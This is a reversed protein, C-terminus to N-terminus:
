NESDQALPSTNQTEDTFLPTLGAKRPGWPPSPILATKKDLQSKRPKVYNRSNTRESTSKQRSISTPQNTGGSHPLCYIDTEAYIRTVPHTYVTIYMTAACLTQLVTHVEVLTVSKGFATRAIVQVIIWAAQFCILVKALANVKSKDKVIEPGIRPLLNREAMFLVGHPTLTGSKVPAEGGWWVYPDKKRGQIMGTILGIGVANTGPSLTVASGPEQYVVRFGGMVAYYSLSLDWCDLTNNPDTPTGAAKHNPDTSAGGIEDKSDALVEAHENKSSDKSPGAIEHQNSNTSAEVIEGKSDTTTGTAENRPSTPADAIGDKLDTSASAAENKNPSAATDAAENKTSSTSSSKPPNKRLRQMEKNLLRAMKREYAAVAMTIEPFFLSTISWGIKRMFRKALLDDVKSLWEWGKPAADPSTLIIPEINVHVTTGECIM